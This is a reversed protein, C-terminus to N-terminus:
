IWGLKTATASIVAAVVYTKVVSFMLHMFYWSRGLLIRYGVVQIVSLMLFSRSRSASSLSSSISLSSFLPTSAVSVFLSLLSIAM